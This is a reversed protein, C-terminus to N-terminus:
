CTKLSTTTKKFGSVEDWNNYKTETEWHFCLKLDSEYKEERWIKKSCNLRVPDAGSFNLIGPDALSINIISNQRWLLIRWIFEQVLSLEADTTAHDQEWLADGAGRVEVKVECCCLVYVVCLREWLLLSKGRFVLQTIFVIWGILFVRQGKSRQAIRLRQGRIRVYLTEAAKVCHPDPLILWCRGSSVRWRPLNIVRSTVAHNGPVM